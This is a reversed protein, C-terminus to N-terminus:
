PRLGVGWQVSSLRCSSRALAATELAWFEFHLDGFFGQLGSRSAGLLPRQLHLTGM